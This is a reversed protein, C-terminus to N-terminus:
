INHIGFNFGSENWRTGLGFNMAEVQRYSSREDQTLNCMETIMRNEEKLQQIRENIFSSEM